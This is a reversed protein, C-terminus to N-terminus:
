AAKRVVPVTDQLLEVIRPVSVTDRADGLAQIAAARKDPDPDNLQERLKPLNPGCASLLLVPIVVFACLCSALRTRAVPGSSRKVVPVSDM